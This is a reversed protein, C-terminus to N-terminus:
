GVCAVSPISGSQGRCRAGMTAVDIPLRVDVSQTDGAAISQVRVGSRPLDATLKDDNAAFAMVNFPKEIPQNSNNRFWVRYRPGIKEEPHGPDVFRVALLQLDFQAEPIIPREVDVWTGSQVVPLTVWIPTQWYVWNYYPDYIVPRCWIPRPDWIPHCHYNWSWSVWPNWSPYWCAGAFFSPGFYVFKFCSKTYFPSVPGHHLYPRHAYYDNVNKLITM